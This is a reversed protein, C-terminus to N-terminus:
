GARRRRVALGILFAILGISSVLTSAAMVSPDSSMALSDFMAKPLTSVTGGGIFIPMIVDDFSTMFALISGAVIGPTILPLMVYRFAQVPKAGLTRAASELTQDRRRITSLVTAVVFPISIIAQALAVGLHTGILRSSAFLPYIAMGFTVYPVVLPALFVVLVANRLAASRIRSIGYASLTGISTAILTCLVGIVFTDILADHWMQDAVIQHYWRMSFGVPPFTMFRDSTVSVSASILIPAVMFLIVAAVFAITLIKGKSKV